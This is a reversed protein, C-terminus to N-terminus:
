TAPATLLRRFRWYESIRLGTWRGLYVNAAVVLLMVEPFAIMLVRLALSAMVAYCAVIVM